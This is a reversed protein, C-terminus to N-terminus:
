NTTELNVKVDIEVEKAVTIGAFSPIDISYDTLDIKFQSTATNPNSFTIKGSIPKTVGHLTFDGEFDTEQIEGKILKDIPNGIKSFKLFSKPYKEVELYKEKMHKDRTALKTTLTSMDLEVTGALTNQNTKLEGSLGNSEGLIKLMAPKGIAKFQVEGSTVKITSANLSQSLFLLVLFTSVKV